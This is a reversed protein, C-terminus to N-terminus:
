AAAVGVECTNLPAVAFEGNSRIVWIAASPETKYM